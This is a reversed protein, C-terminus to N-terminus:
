PSLLVWFRVDCTVQADELEDTAVILLVAGVMPSADATDAPVVVMLAVRPDTLPLVSNVTVETVGVNIVTAGAFGVSASPRLWCNVAVAVKESPLVWSTVPTACQCEDLLAADIVTLPSAVAVLRPVEVMLAVNPPILPLVRSVTLAALTLEMAILGEFPLM